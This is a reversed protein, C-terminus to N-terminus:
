SKTFNQLRLLTEKRGLIEITEFIPPSMTSGTLAIRMPQAIDGLKIEEKESYQRVIGEIKEAKWDNTKEMEKM